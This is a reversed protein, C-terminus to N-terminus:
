YLLLLNRHQTSACLRCWAYGGAHHRVGFPSTSDGQRIETVATTLPIIGVPLLEDGVLANILPSKGRKFQGIVS